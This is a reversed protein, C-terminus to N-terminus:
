SKKPSSNDGGHTGVTISAVPLSHGTAPAAMRSQERREAILQEQIARRKSIETVITSVILLLVLPWAVSTKWIMVGVIAALWLGQGVIATFKEDSPLPPPAKGGQEAILRDVYQKAREHTPNKRGVSIVYNVATAALLGVGLAFFALQVLDPSGGGLLDKLAKVAVLAASAASTM